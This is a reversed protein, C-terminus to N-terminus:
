KATESQTAPAGGTVGLRFLGDLATVLLDTHWDGFEEDKAWQRLHETPAHLLKDVGAELARELAERDERGLHQLRGHLSRELEAELVSRFQRRLAVVTPTVREAYVREAFRRTEEGVIEAARDAERQRGALAGHAVESLDDVNYLFVGDLEGARPDVDRPVALDVLFLNRGHRSRRARGLQEFTLVYGPASTSSILVDAEVLLGPLDEWSRGSAGLEHTLERVRDQNRGVVLLRAGARGLLGAVITAMEGTGLLVVTHGALEGFIDRALEVAVTPVSVQGTGLSTETRVRKAVRFAREFARNLWPGVASARRAAAFASKLQGLIQPEGVVLSDLSAAVRFLHEVGTRGAHVYLLRSLELDKAALEDAIRSGLEDPSDTQGPLPVAMVEVRNCTSLLVMEGARTRQKLELLREPLNADQIALRERVALPASRHSLGVVVIV